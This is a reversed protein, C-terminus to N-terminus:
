WMKTLELELEVPVPPPQYRGSSHYTKLLSVHFVPHLKRLNAPLKSTSGSLGFTEKQHTPSTICMLMVSPFRLCVKSVTLLCQLFVKIITSSCADRHHRWRVLAPALLDALGSSRISGGCISSGCRGLLAAPPTGRTGLKCRNPSSTRLTHATSAAATAGSQLNSSNVKGQQCPLEAGLHPHITTCCCTYVWGTTSQTLDAKSISM